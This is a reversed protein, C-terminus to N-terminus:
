FILLSIIGIVLSFTVLGGYLFLMERFFLIKGFNVFRKYEKTNRYQKGSTDLVTFNALRKQSYSLELDPSNVFQEIKRFRFSDGRYLYLWWADVLWFMIPLIVTIIVYKRLDSQGIMVTLAAGWSVIAFNKVSQSITERRSISRELIDIEMKLCEIQFAFSQKQAESIPKAHHDLDNELLRNLLPDSM